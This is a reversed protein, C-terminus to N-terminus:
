LASLIKNLHLGSARMSHKLMLWNYTETQLEVLGIEPLNLLGSMSQIFDTETNAIILPSHGYTSLYVDKRINQTVVAKGCAAAEFATVGYCGYPKGDLEPKFLEIYIDCGSIRQLQEPHSVKADSYKFIFEKSLKAKLNGIMEVIKV